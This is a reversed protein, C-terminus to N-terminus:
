ELCLRGGELRQLCLLYHQSSKEEATGYVSHSSAAGASSLIVLVCAPTTRSCNWLNTMLQDVQVLILILKCTIIETISCTLTDLIGM